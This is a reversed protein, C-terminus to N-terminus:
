GHGHDRRKAVALDIDFGQLALHLKLDLGARRANTRHAGGALTGRKRMGSCSRTIEATTSAAAPRILTIAPVPLLLVSSARRSVRQAAM